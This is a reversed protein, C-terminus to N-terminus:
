APEWDELLDWGIMEPALVYLAGLPDKDLEIHRDYYVAICIGLQSRSFDTAGPNVWNWQAKADITISPYFGAHSTTVLDGPSIM